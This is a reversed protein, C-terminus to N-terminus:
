PAPEDIEPRSWMWWGIVLGMIGFAVAAGLMIGALLFCVTMTLFSAVLLPQVTEGPMAMVREIRADLESTRLAQHHDTMTRQEDHRHDVMSQLTRGDWLPNLSHVTPVVPFNYAKPPSGTAWELTNAGWPDDPAPPGSLLSQIFVFLTWLFGFALIYAGITEILNLTGWGYGAPYTYIRRPMGLLGQIHMPFFTVNMGVFILVCSIVGGTHNTM